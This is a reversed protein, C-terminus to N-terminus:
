LNVSVEGTNSDFVITYATNERYTYRCSNGNFNLALFDTTGSSSVTPASDNMVANWVDICDNTSNLTLSVGRTDAPWGNVNVSLDGGSRTGSLSVFNLVAGPSGKAVWLSHVLNVGTTFAAGTGAVAAKQADETVNIFRPLAVASLIGLLAIVVVLEIITFGQSNEKLQIM